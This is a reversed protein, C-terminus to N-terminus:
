LKYDVWSGTDPGLPQCPRHLQIKMPGTTLHLQQISGVSRQVVAPDHAYRYAHCNSNGLLGGEDKKM